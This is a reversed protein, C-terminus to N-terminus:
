AWLVCHTKLRSTRLASLMSAAITATNGHAPRRLLSSGLSKCRQVLGPASLMADVEAHVACRPRGGISVSGGVCTREGNNVGFSVPTHNSARLLVAGHQAKLNSSSAAEAAQEVLRQWKKSLPLRTVATPALPSHHTFADM